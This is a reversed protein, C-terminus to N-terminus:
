QSDGLPAAVQRRRETAHEPKAYLRVIEIPFQNLNRVVSSHHSLPRVQRLDDETVVSIDSAELKYTSTKSSEVTAVLRHIAVFFQATIAVLLSGPPQNGSAGRPTPSSINLHDNSDPVPTAPVCPPAYHRKVRGHRKRQSPEPPM